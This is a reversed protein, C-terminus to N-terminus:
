IYQLFLFNLMKKDKKELINLKTKLIELNELMEEDPIDEVGDLCECFYDKKSIEYGLEYLEYPSLSEVYDSPLLKPAFNALTPSM